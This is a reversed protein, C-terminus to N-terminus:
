RIESKLGEYVRMYERFSEEAVSYDGYWAFEYQRTLQKFPLKYRTDRLEYAYDYNTKDARYQILQHENLLQLILLYGSRIALKHNGESIANRLQQEWDINDIDEVTGETSEEGQVKKKKKFLAQKDNLFGKYVLYLMFLVILAWVVTRGATSTFFLIVWAILKSFFNQSANMTREQAMEKDNKYSFDKDNAFQEWQQSTITHAARVPQITFCSFFVLLLSFLLNPIKPM